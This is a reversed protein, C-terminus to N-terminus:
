WKEEESELIKRFEGVAQSLLHRTWDCSYHLNRAIESIERYKIYRQHLVSMYRPDKVQHIQNIIKNKLILFRLKEKRIQALLDVYRVVSDAMVDPSPSSIVRVKDYQFGGMLGASAEADREEEEKEQIAEDLEQVQELYKRVEYNNM